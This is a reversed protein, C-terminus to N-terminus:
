PVKYVEQCLEWLHYTVLEESIQDLRYDFRKKAQPNLATSNQIAIVISSYGYAEFSLYPFCKTDIQETVKKALFLNMMIKFTPALDESILYDRRNEKLAIGFVEMAPRIIDKKLQKFKELFLSEELRIQENTQQKELSRQDQELLFTNLKNKIVPDM